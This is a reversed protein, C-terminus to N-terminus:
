LLGQRKLDMFKKKTLVNGESDEFEEEMDSKFEANDAELLLKQHLTIADNISTIDKFHVTNPIKLCKMGYSHRWEQFHREFAREGWYSYNGCIECKYEIGLGHLKYLWYPIPKGDWGLPLNKPNYIPKIDEEDESESAQEFQKAAIGEKEELIEEWTQTQKKQLHNYTDVVLSGIQEKLNQVMCEQYALKKRNQEDQLSNTPHDLQTPQDLQNKKMAELQKHKKGLFHHVFTNENQFLKECYPCYLRNNQIDKDNNNDDRLDWGRITREKWRYEFNQRCQAEFLKYNALPQIRQFFGKLYNVLNKLYRKYKKYEKEKLQYPIEHFQEFNMLYWLYDGIKYDESQQIKRLNLFEQYLEHMDVYRGGAEEGTFYPEQYPLEFANDYIQEAENKNYETTPITFRKHYNRIEKLRDYFNTWINAPKGSNQQTIFNHRQGYIISVEEKKLEDSDNLLLLGDMSVKQVQEAIIRDRICM